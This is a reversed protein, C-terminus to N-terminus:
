RESTVPVSELDTLTEKLTARGRHHLGHVSSETRGLREAIEPPSLGVMHRLILVQRQAEPLASFAAKLCERRQLGLREDRPDGARVEEVPIQKRARMHDLTANRAVRMIWAAFPVSREEYKGIATILKAFVDQTIDEAQHHDRVISRVYGYVDDAYRVYLYHVGDWEGRKASAIAQRDLGAGGRRTEDTSGTGDDGRSGLRPRDNGGTL